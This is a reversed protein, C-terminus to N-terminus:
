TTHDETAGLSAAEWESLSRGDPTKWELRGNSARGNAVAAAASPSNFAYDATFVAPLVSTDIIGQSVLRERLTRYGYDHHGVGEWANRVKSGTLVVFKAERQEAQADVGNKPTRLVFRQVADPGDLPQVPVHPTAKGDRLLDFGIAPLVIDLTEMFDEISAAAAESLGGAIPATGNDLVCRGAARARQMLRAELYRAHAKHFADTGTTVIICTEWWDKGTDHDRIRRAVNEGEGVYLTPREDREGVLLYCGTHRAETRALMAALQTRPARLVHGTWNFMEATLMGEPDGDVFFLELARGRSM